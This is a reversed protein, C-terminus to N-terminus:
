FASCISVWLRTVRSNKPPARIHGRRCQGPAMKGRCPRVPRTWGPRRNCVVRHRGDRRRARRLSVEGSWCCDVVLHLTWPEKREWWGVRGRSQLRQGLALRQLSTRPFMLLRAAPTVASPEAGNAATGDHDVAVAVFLKVVCGVTSCTGPAADVGVRPLRM